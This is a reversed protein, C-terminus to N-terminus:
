LLSCDEYPGKSETSAKIQASDWNQSKMFKLIMANVFKKIM